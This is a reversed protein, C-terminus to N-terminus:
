KFLRWILNLVLTLVLSIVVSTTIPVFCSWGDGGLRLDGPLSGLGLRGGLWLALGLLVVAVGAVALLKGLTQLDM